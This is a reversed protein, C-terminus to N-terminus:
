GSLVFFLDVGASGGTLNHPDARTAAHEWVVGMAAVFRLVQLSPLRFSRQVVVEAM